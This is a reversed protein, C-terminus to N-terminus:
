RRPETFPLRYFSTEPSVHHIAFRSRLIRRALTGMRLPGWPFTGTRFSKSLITARMILRPRSGFSHPRCARPPVTAGAVEQRLESKVQGWVAPQAQLPSCLGTAVLVLMMTIEGFGSLISPDSKPKVSGM